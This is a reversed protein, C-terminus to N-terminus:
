SHMSSASLSALVCYQASMRYTVIAWVPNGISRTRQEKGRIDQAVLLTGVLRGSLTYSNTTPLPM